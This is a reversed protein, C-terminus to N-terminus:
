STKPTFKAMLDSIQRQRGEDVSVPTQIMTLEEVADHDALQAEAANDDEPEYTVVQHARVAVSGGEPLKVVWTNAKEFYTAHGDAALVALMDADYRLTDRDYTRTM